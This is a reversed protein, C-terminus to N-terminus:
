TKELFARVESFYDEGYYKYFEGNPKVILFGACNQHDTFINNYFYGSDMIFQSDKEFSDSFYSDKAFVFFDITNHESSIRSSIEKSISANQRGSKLRVLLCNEARQYYNILVSKGDPISTKLETELVIKLDTYESLSLTGVYASKSKQYEANPYTNIKDLEESPLRTKCSLIVMLALIFCILNLM